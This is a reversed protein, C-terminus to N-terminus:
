AIAAGDVSQTKHKGADAGYYNVYRPNITAVPLVVLIDITGFDPDPVAQRSFKAGLRLYGKILPPLGALARKTNEQPLEFGTISVADKSTAPTDWEDDCLANKALFALSPAIKDFGKAEFSACGVMVDVKHHLAYAWTGHWMLEMTRKNRYDSLICSRGLEMFKKDPFRKALGELDFEPQSYFTGTRDKSSKVFFRQTGVIKKGGPANSEIMLLHDCLADHDDSDRQTLLRAQNKAASMEECFVQYRIHQSEEVEAPSVALRTSLSGIKGSIAAPGDPNKVTSHMSM